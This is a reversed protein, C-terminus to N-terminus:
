NHYKPEWSFFVIWRSTCAIWQIKCFWWRDQCRFKLLCQFSRLWCAAMFRWGSCAPTATQTCWRWRVALSPSNYSYFFFSDILLIVNRSRSNHLHVTFAPSSLRVRDGPQLVPETKTGLKNLLTYALKLSRSWLKGTTFAFKTLEWSCRQQTVSQPGTFGAVWQLEVCGSTPPRSKNWDRRRMHFLVRRRGRPSRRVTLKGLNTRSTGVTRSRTSPNAPSTWHPSLRARPRRPGGAPWPPRCPLPGTASWEWPSARWQSSRVARRNPPTPTQSPCQFSSRSVSFHNLRLLM